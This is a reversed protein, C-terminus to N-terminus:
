RIGSLTRVIAALRMDTLPDAIGDLAHACCMDCHSKVCALMMCAYMHAVICTGTGQVAMDHGAAISRCHIHQMGYCHECKLRVIPHHRQDSVAATTSAILSWGEECSILM